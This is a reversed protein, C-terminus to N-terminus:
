SKDTKLKLIHDLMGELTPQDAADYFQSAWEQRTSAAQSMLPEIGAESVTKAVETMEEARRTGHELSRSLMYRALETWDDAPLINSLSALVTEDVGYHRAALLSEAVLAEVGKIMVSRCMKTASATGITESGIHPNFGLGKVTSLFAEMHPGGILLPVAIRKPHIPSMVAAEVYRAGAEEIVTAAEQKTNPSASNMDLYLANKKIGGTVSKAASVTEAATVASIVLDAETAAKEATRFAIVSEKSVAVSPESTPDEFATDFVTIVSVGAAKLDAALTQGVEGFGILCVTELSSM